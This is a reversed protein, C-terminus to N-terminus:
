AFSNVKYEIVYHIVINIQIRFLRVFHKDILDLSCINDLILRMILIQRDITQSDFPWYVSLTSVNIATMAQDDMRKDFM